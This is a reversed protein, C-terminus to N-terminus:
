GQAYGYIERIGAVGSNPFGFLGGDSGDSPTFGNIFIVINDDPDIANTPQNLAYVYSSTAYYLESKRDMIQWRGIEPYYMRAGYDM